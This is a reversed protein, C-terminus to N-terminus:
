TTPVLVVPCHAHQLLAHGVSGIQPGLRRSRRRMGIVVVDADRSGSLLADAPRTRVTQCDVEVGPFQERLQATGFQPVAAEAPETRVQRAQGASTTAPLPPLEPTTHRYVPVHLIRLRSGRRAAEQFAFRAAPADAQDELGLLVSGSQGEPHAGRVVLLPGRVSATLRWSVSGALLGSVAGFGRTGVVTLVATWSERALVKVAGGEVGKLVMPLRPHRARVRSAAMALVPEAEALDAVACVIRLEAGRRVAEEAARDLARVAVLSGDVGILVQHHAM